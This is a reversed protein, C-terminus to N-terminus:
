HITSCKENMERKKRWFTKDILWKYKKTKEFLSKLWIVMAWVIVFKHNNQHIFCKLMFAKVQLSTVDKDCSLRRGM